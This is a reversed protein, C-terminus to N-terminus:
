GITRLGLSKRISSDIVRQGVIIDRKTQESLNLKQIQKFNFWAFETKTSSSCKHLRKVEAYYINHNAGKERSFYTYISNINHLKLKISLEEYFIDRFTEEGTKNKIAKKGLLSWFSNSDASNKQQLLIQQSKPHYLFGSAYLSKHM